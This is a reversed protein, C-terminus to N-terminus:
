KESFKEVATGMSIGESYWKQIEPRRCLHNELKEQKKTGNKSKQATFHQKKENCSYTINTIRTKHLGRQQWFPTEPTKKDWFDLFPVSFENICVLLGETEPETEPESESELELESM